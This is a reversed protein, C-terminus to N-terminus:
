FPSDYSQRRFLISSLDNVRNRQDYSPERMACFCAGDLIHNRGGGGGGGQCPAKASPELKSDFTM